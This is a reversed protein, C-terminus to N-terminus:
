DMQGRLFRLEAPSFTKQREVLFLGIAKWLADVNEISVYPEGDMEEISFGNVLYINDLGCEKYHYPKSALDAHGYKFLRPKTMEPPLMAETM